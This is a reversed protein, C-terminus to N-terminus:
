NLVFIITIITILLVLFIFKTNKEFLTKQSKDSLVEEAEAAAVVDSNYIDFFPVTLGLYDSYKQYYKIAFIRAPFVSYNGTEIAKIYDVNIFIEAAVESESLSRAIRANIFVKGIKGTHASKLKM